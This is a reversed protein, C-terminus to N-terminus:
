ESGTTKIKKCTDCEYKVYELSSIGDYLAMEFDREVRFFEDAIEGLYCKMNSSRYETRKPEHICEYLIQFQNEDEAEQAEEMKEKAIDYIILLRDLVERISPYHQWIENDNVWLPIPCNERIYFDSCGREKFEQLVGTIKKPM